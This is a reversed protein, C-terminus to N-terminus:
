REDRVGFARLALELQRAFGESPDRTRCWAAAGTLDEPLPELKALDVVHKSGPGQDVAAYLKFFIQDRRGALHLVLGGFRRTTTRQEFGEPLGFDLLSTPGGNIWDDQLGMAAAVERVASSLYDPLPTASVYRRASVIAVLDLDKTPREILDLLLLSGGGIAVLEVEKGRDALVEGLVELADELSKSSFAM